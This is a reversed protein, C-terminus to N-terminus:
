VSSLQPLCKMMLLHRGKIDYERLLIKCFHPKNPLYSLGGIKSRKLQAYNDQTLWHGPIELVSAAALASALRTVFAHSTLDSYSSTAVNVFLHQQLVTSLAQRNLTPVGDRAYPMLQSRLEEVAREIASIFLAEWSKQTVKSYSAKLIDYAVPGLVYDGFLKIM